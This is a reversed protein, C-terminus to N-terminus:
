FFLFMGHLGVVNNDPEGVLTKLVNLQRILLLEWRALDGNSLAKWALIGQPGSRRQLKSIVVPLAPMMAASAFFLCFRGCALRRVMDGERILLSM